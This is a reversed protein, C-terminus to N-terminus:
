QKKKKIANKVESAFEPYDSLFSLFELVSGNFLQKLFKDKAYKIYEEKDILPIYTYTKGIKKSIGIAKKNILRRILTRVTNDSWKCHKISNIIEISTTEKNNWVVKMVELEADSIGKM